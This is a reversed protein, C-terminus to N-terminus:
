AALVVMGDVLTVRVARLRDGRCPGEVCVGDAIRFLAGHTSCQILTKDVNLFVDPQWDLPTGVHPCDNAYGFVSAGRRVVFIEQKEGDREVVFGRGGPDAIDALACLAQGPQVVPRAAPDAFSM